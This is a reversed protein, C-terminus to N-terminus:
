AAEAKAIAARARECQAELEPIPDNYSGIGWPAKTVHVTPTLWGDGYDDRYNGADYAECAAKHNAIEAETCSEPDPNFNNPNSPRFYGYGSIVSEAEMFPLAQKLAALLEDRQVRQEIQDAVSWPLGGAQQAELVETPVGECANWCAVLRRANAERMGPNNEGFDIAVAVFANKEVGVIVTEPCGENDFLSASVALKGPTYGSM